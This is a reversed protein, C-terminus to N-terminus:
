AHIKYKFKRKIKTMALSFLAGGTLMVKNANFIVRTYGNYEMLCDCYVAGYAENNIFTVNSNGNFTILSLFRCHVAGGYFGAENDNFKVSSNGKFTIQSSDTYYM